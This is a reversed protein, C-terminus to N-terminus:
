FQFCFNTWNRCQVNKEGNFCPAKIPHGTRASSEIKNDLELVPVMILTRNHFQADLALVPVLAQIGM